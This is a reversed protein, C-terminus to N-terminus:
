HKEYDSAVPQRVAIEVSVFITARSLLNVKALIAELSYWKWLLLDLLTLTLM